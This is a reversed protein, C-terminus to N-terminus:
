ALCAEIARPLKARQAMWHYTDNSFPVINTQCKPTRGAPLSLQIEFGEIWQDSGKVDLFVRSDDCIRPSSTAFCDGAVDVSRGRPCKARCTGYCLFRKALRPKSTSGRRLSGCRAM